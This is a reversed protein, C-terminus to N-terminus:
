APKETTPAQMSRVWPGVTSPTGTTPVELVTMSASFRVSASVTATPAHDSKPCASRRRSDQSSSPEPTERTTAGDSVSMAPGRM